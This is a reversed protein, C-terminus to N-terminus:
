FLVGAGEGVILGDGDKDFPRCIGSQSIARLQTFGMQTFQSSPRSVGGTLVADARRACLEDCAYKIAYLSSACAADLTYGGGGLGLASALLGAPMEASFRNMPDTVLLDEKNLVKNEMQSKIISMNLHRTIESTSDTPLVINALIVQVRNLDLNDRNTDFFADRGAQLILKYLPDFGKIRELDVNLGEYNEPLEEIACCNLTGVKDAEFNEGHYKDGDEPWRGLPVKKAASRGDVIMQWFEDLNKAGPFIGGIGTIAISYPAKHKLKTM